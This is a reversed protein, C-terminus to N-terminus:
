LEPVDSSNGQEEPMPPVDSVDQQTDAAMDQENAESAAASNDQTDTTQMDHTLPTVTLTLEDIPGSTFYTEYRYASSTVSMNEFMKDAENADVRPIIGLSDLIADAEEQTASPNAMLECALVFTQFANISEPPFADPYRTQIQINNLEKSNPRAVGKMEVATSLVAIFGEPTDNANATPLSTDKQNILRNFTERFAAPDRLPNQENVAVVAQSESQNQQYWSYGASAFYYGALVLAFLRLNRRVKDSKQQKEQDIQEQTKPKSNRLDQVNGSPPIPKFSM